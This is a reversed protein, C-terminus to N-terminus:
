CRRGLRWVGNENWLHVEYKKKGTFKRQCYPCIALILEDFCPDPIESM